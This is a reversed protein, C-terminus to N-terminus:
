EELGHKKKLEDLNIMISANSQMLNELLAERSVKEEVPAREDEELFPWLRERIEPPLVSELYELATGRLHPDDTHLGRFSVQLPERPLVLSLLTFVHELSRNARTKLFEDIFGSEGAESSDLLRQSKWLRKDVKVESLVREFVRAAEVDPLEGADHLKALQIGCRYRVEFRNVALGEFLGEISDPSGIWRLLQPIRRRVTHSENRDTLREVLQGTAVEGLKRVRDAVLQAVEDRALLPIIHPLLSEDVDTELAEKVRELDGSTLAEVRTDVPDAEPEERSPNAPVPDDALMARMATMSRFVTQDPATAEGPDVEVSRNLLSAELTRVYGASLRRLLVLAVAAFVIVPVLLAAGAAPAVALIGKVAGGGLADGVRDVGVDIVPKAARKEAAPVPTFFLEYGSRFFTSRLTSEAGRAVAAAALGPIFMLAAGGAGIGLPLAAATGALGFGSLARKSAGAQLILTVVAVATYFIAFFRILEDGTPFAATARAKFAFDLMTAGINIVLVLLALDRLYSSKLIGRWGGGEEAKQAHRESPQLRVLMLLCVLHLGAMIPLMTSLGFLAGVREATLGGVVGGISAGSAIRGMQKKATRPDFYETILSWFGSVLIPGLVAIHLYVVVAAPKPRWSLLWWEALLLAVSVAYVAPVFRGPGIKTMARSVGVVLLASVLASVIIMTPLDTVSFSSLFLADRTAKGAVQQAIMAGATVSAAM